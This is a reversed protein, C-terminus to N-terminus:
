NFSGYLQRTIVGPPRVKNAKGARKVSPCQARDCKCGTLGRIVATKVRQHIAHNMSWEGIGVPRDKISLITTVSPYWPGGNWSYRHRADRVLGLAPSPAPEHNVDESVHSRGSMGGPHGTKHEITMAM